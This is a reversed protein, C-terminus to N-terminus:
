WLIIIREEDDRGTDALIFNEPNATRSQRLEDPIDIDGLTHPIPAQIGNRKRKRTVGKDLTPLTPLYAIIEDTAGALCENVVTRPQNLDTIANTRVNSRVQQAKAKTPSPAHNHESTETIDGFDNNRM